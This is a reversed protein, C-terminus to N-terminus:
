RRDTEFAYANSREFGNYRTEVLRCAGSVYAAFDAIYTANIFYNVRWQEM